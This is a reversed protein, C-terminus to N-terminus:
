GESGGNEKDAWQTCFLNKKGLTIRLTSHSSPQLSTLVLGTESGKSLSRQSSSGPDCNSSGWGQSLSLRLRDEYGGDGGVVPIRTGRSKYARGLLPLNRRLSHTHTGLVQGGDTQV